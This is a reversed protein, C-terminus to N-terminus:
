KKAAKAVTPMSTPTGGTPVPPYETYELRRVQKDVIAFHKGTPPWYVVVTGNTHVMEYGDDAKFEQAQASKIESMPNPHPMDCTVYAVKLGIM